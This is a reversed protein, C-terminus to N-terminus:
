ARSPARTRKHASARLTCAPGPRRPGAPPPLRPASASREADLEQAAGALQTQLGGLDSRLAAVEARAQRGGAAQAGRRLRAARLSGQGFGGPRASLPAPPAWARSGGRSRRAGGPQPLGGARLSVGLLQQATPAPDSPAAHAHQQAGHSWYGRGHLGPRLPLGPRAEVALKREVAAAEQGLRALEAQLAGAEDAAAQLEGRLRAVEANRGALDEAAARAEGQRAWDGDRLAGSRM